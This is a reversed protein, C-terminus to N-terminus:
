PSTLRPRTSSGSPADRGEPGEQLEINLEQRVTGFLDLASREGVIDDLPSSQLLEILKQMGISVGFVATGLFAVAVSLVLNTTVWGPETTEIAAWVGLVYVVYAAGLIAVVLSILAVLALVVPASSVLLRHVLSLRRRLEGPGRLPGAGTATQRQAPIALDSPPFRLAVQREPYALLQNLLTRPFASTLMGEGSIRFGSARGLLGLLPAFASRGPRWGMVISGDRAATEIMAVLDLLALEDESALIVVDGIAEAALAARRHYFSLGHRGVLVRLNPIGELLREERQGRDGDPLMVLLEWYRFRASLDNSMQQLAEITRDGEGIEAFGVSVFLDERPRAPNM